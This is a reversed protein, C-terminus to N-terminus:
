KNLLVQFPLKSHSLAAFSKDRVDQLLQSFNASPRIRLRLALFNVFPGIVDMMESETRNADGIGIAVDEGDNVPSYRLLLVRFTALYFHFPTVRYRRCISQIKGKLAISVRLSARENEYVRLAPRSTAKSLTLIPLPPPFKAMEAKWFELEADLKGAAFDAHQKESYYSFQHPKYAEDYNPYTYLQQVGKLLSQFSMGDAVLPHLGAVFYHQEASLSLLMCRMTKGRAVDYVHYDQLLDVARQVDEEEDIQIVELHLASTNMIAQIPQGNQEIICTRLIEHQRVLSRFARQVDPIRIRGVIRARATHNLSTKDELFAWVFWFTEQSFSLRFTKWFSLAQGIEVSSPEESTDSTSLAITLANSANSIDATGSSDTEPDESSEHPEALAKGHVELEANPNSKSTSVLREPIRDAAMTILDRIPAGSLIKLVPINAEFTKMFWGRIEVALLSDIGMEDLRMGVVTDKAVKSPDLQFLSYLKPLFADRVINHIQDQDQARALQTRLPIRIESDATAQSPGDSNRVFHSMLPEAEWVPRDRDYKSIRRAGSFLEITNWSSGPRGAIVAEAFLQYFDRECTPIMATSRFAARSYIPKELQAAYGVGYIPGIHIISAALGRRRRQEALSTMFANAASYNSQGPRGIVSVVSSFFVFFDLTNEQFLDNLHVSGEIKPKTGRLFNDVTMAHIATDDLVM